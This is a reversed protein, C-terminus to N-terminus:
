EGLHLSRLTTGVLLNDVAEFHRDYSFLAYGYQLASAAIWMDNTPVPQGKSRLHQYVEAYHIATIEDVALVRVRASALFQRLETRNKEARTGIAFGGLLEGLVTSNFALHSARQIVALAEPKGQKFATYANTDVLVATVAV